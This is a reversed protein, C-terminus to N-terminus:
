WLYQGLAALHSGRHGFGSAVPRPEPSPFSPLGFEVPRSRNFHVQKKNGRILSAAFTQRRQSVGMGFRRIEIGQRASSRQERSM